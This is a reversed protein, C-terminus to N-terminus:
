AAALTSRRCCPIGQWDIGGQTSQGIGGLHEMNLIYLSSMNNLKFTGTINQLSNASVMAVDFATDGVFDGDVFSLGGFDVTQPADTALAISGSFTQCASLQSAQAGVTTTGLISCQAALPFPFSSLILLLIVSSQYHM